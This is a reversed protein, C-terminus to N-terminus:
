NSTPTANSVAKRTERRIALLQAAAYGYTAWVGALLAAITCALPLPTRTSWLARPVIADGLPAAVGAAVTAKGRVVASEPRPQVEAILRLEGEPGGPLDAPFRVAATGDDLTKDTGLLLEGFSREVFFKVAVNEVPKEGARVTARIQREGEEVVVALSVVVQPGTQPVTHPETTPATTPGTVPRATPEAAPTRCVFAAAVVAIQLLTFAPKM